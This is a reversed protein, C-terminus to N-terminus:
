PSAEIGVDRADQTGWAAFCRSDGTPYVIWDTPMGYKVTTIVVDNGRMVIASVTSGKGIERRIVRLAESRAMSGAGIFDLCDGYTIM